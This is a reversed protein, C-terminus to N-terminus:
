WALYLRLSNIGWSKLMEFDEKVLSGNLNYGTRIPYFPFEKYVVNVGHM